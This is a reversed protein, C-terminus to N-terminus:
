HNINATSQNVAPTKSLYEEIVQVAVPGATTSGGGANEIIVAVAIQPNDIPAFAIFLAHDRLREELESEDYEEDEGLSFVQATGSKGAISIDTKRQVNRATGKFGTMVDEMGKIVKRWNYDKAVVAISTDQDLTNNIQNRRDESLNLQNLNSIDKILHPHVYEGRMATIATATALQLPTTLMYGQGIGAIVTEGPFWAQDGPSKFNSKKWEKNPLVGRKSGAIGPNIVSGLQFQKLYDHMSDIGLELALEYYFIDCSVEISEELDVTGHGERQWDRYPRPNNPLKFFGPCFSTHQHRIKGLELGALGLMPKITSGPPYSGALARNLLPKDKNNLLLDFEAQTLGQSFGNGDFTPSSLMTLIEGNNPDIAIIAGRRGQMAEIAIAQLKADITLTVDSGSRPADEEIVELTRGEANVLVQRYGVQGLLVDELSLEIGTKGIHSTGSYSKTDIQQLERDNISGVYGVTHVLNGSYPYHRSLRARIHVGKLHVLNAAINALASENLNMILPIQEFSNFRKRRKKFSEVQEKSIPIIQKLTAITNNIDVIEEPVLTLQFTPLNEALVTGNRDYIFGRNPPIPEIRIRNGDALNDYHDFSVIQM